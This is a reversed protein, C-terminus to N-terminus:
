GMYTGNRILREIIDWQHITGPVFYPQIGHARLRKLVLRSRKAAQCTTGNTAIILSLHRTLELGYDFFQAPLLRESPGQGGLVIHPLCNPM